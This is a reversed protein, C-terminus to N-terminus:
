EELTRVYDILQSEKNGSIRNRWQMQKFTKVLSLESLSKFLGIAEASIAPRRPKMNKKLNLNAAANKSVSNGHATEDAVGSSRATAAGGQQGPGRTKLYNYVNLDSL